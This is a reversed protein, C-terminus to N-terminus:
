GGSAGVQRAPSAPTEFTADPSFGVLCDVPAPGAGLARVVMTEADWPTGGGPLLYGYRNLYDRFTREDLPIDPHGIIREVVRLKM